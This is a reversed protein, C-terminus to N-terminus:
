RAKSGMMNRLFRDRDEPHKLFSMQRKKSPKKNLDYPAGGIAQWYEHLIRMKM